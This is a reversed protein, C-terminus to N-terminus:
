DKFLALTREDIIATIKGVVSQLHASTVIIDDELIRGDYLVVDGVEYLNSEEVNFVM